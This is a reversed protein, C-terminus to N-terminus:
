RSPPGGPGAPPESPLTGDLHSLVIKVVESVRFPKKIYDSAGVLRSRVRDVIGDRGTLMVIPTQAFDGNTRLIRAVEYGDMRPLGIDLLLLAPVEAEGRTLAQMAAFGDAYAYVRVGVRDFSVEIIKRVAASDDILMIPRRPEGQDNAWEVRDPYLPDGGTRTSPISSSM